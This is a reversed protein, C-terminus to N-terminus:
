RSSSIETCRGNTNRHILCGSNETGGAKMSQWPEKLTARTREQRQIPGRPSVPWHMAANSRTITDRNADSAAIRPSSRRSARNSPPRSAPPSKQPPKELRAYTMLRRDSSQTSARLRPPDSYRFRADNMWRFGHTFDQRSWRGALGCRSLCSLRCEAKAPTRRM